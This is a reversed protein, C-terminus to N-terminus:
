PAQERAAPAQERAAPAQRPEPRSPREAPEPRERAPPGGREAGGREAPGAGGPGRGGGRPGEGPEERQALEIRGDVGDGLSRAVSLDSLVLAPLMTGALLLSRTIRM